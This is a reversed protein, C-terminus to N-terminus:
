VKLESEINTEWSIGKRKKHMKWKKSWKKEYRQKNEEFITRFKHDQLKKFSAGEFHHIFSDESITLKYGAKKVAEAYDDDEFMGVGYEEDLVGCKDIVERKILTCFLALVSPNQYQKGMNDWTYNYSFTNLEDISHYHVKIKAENGISNTVPGCMGLKDDNELHKVLSTLWGRTVITDNNLLLVYDGESAKIGINNGGAFGSNSNNLIVKVNPLKREDLQELYERTGDTSLNDVVILEYNPYATKNLISNICLKNLKLNNYTLVVISVKPVAKYCLEAFIEYREQWDNSKGFEICEEENALEDTNDLCKQIYEVFERNDNTMYVYKNRFLELEPIETAVVKKGASLYEYFKVPNTAKILDTSTDFPILCVDFYELHKPLEEYPIEGLLKINSYKQLKNRGETVEGIIVIDYEKLNEAVYCVKDFDFWQAVAGYYGIVKRERNSRRLAAKNFHKFETGNRIIEINSNYKKAIDYLFQSSPIVFDSTELLKTCNAGVLKEAPNLFGTYDDMYDTIIKFGFKNRLYEAAYIWNPYDVVTIADRICYDHLLKNLLKYLEEKQNSWDTLHIASYDENKFNVIYLNEDLNVINSENFHNANIYFVRHGNKAFSTALHQPRQYRFDYDIVSLVIVDYNNYDKELIVQQEQNFQEIMKKTRAFWTNGNAICPANKSALQKIEASTFKDLYYLYEDKNNFCAVYDCIYSEMEKMNSTIVPLGIACYEYFKIPSVCNMAENIVFPITAVDFFKAYDSLENYQKLGLLHINPINKIVSTDYIVKGIFVFEFNPRAKAVEAVLNFDMWEAIYGYYGVIKNGKNIIIQMDEPIYDKHQNLFEDPNTGNPLYVIDERNKIYKQLPKAVYSIWEAKCVIENHLIEYQEDYYPFIDLKDLIHYWIKKNEIKNVFAMSGLWTLMVTVNTKGIAMLLDTEHTIILNPEIERYCDKINPHECFFCLWGQKSFARLLQQPTQLPEWYVVHPYILIGKYNGNRIRNEIDITEKTKKRNFEKNIRHEEEVIHRNLECEINSNIQITNDFNNSKQIIDNAINNGLINLVSYIPNYRHEADGGRRMVKSQIWKIFLKKENKNGKFFQYKLRNLFHILQFLKSKSMALCQNIAQRTIEEKKNLQTSFSKLDKELEEIKKIYSDQNNIYGQLMKDAEVLKNEINTREVELNQNDVLLKNQKRELNEEKIKLQTNETELMYFKEEYVKKDNLLGFNYSVLDFIRTSNVTSNVDSESYSIPQLSKTKTATYAVLYGEEVPMLQESMLKEYLKDLEGEYGEAVHIHHASVAPTSIYEVHVDDLGIRNLIDIYNNRLYETGYIWKSESMLKARMLLYAISKTNPVLFLVGKSSIKEANRMAIELEVDGFHEMVGSNWAIEYKMPLNDINMLDGKIFDAKLNYKKFTEKAKELAVNSFDFLTVNYGKLALCASLHGSGCGLEILTAGPNIELDKLLKEIEDAIQFEREEIDIPYTEAVEDWTEISPVLNNM